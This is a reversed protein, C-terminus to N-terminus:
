SARKTGRPGTRQRIADILLWLGTASISAMWLWYGALYSVIEHAGADDPAYSWFASNLALLLMIVGLVLKLRPAKGYQGAAIALAPILMANAFWGFHGMLPGLWGILLITWGTTINTGGFTESEIAPLALSAGWCALISLGAIAKRAFPSIM